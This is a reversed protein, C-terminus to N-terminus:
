SWLITSKYIYIYIYIYIAKVGLTFGKPSIKTIAGILINLELEVNAKVGLTFHAHTSIKPVKLLFFV